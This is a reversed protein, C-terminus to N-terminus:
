MVKLTQLSVATWWVMRKNTKKFQWEEDCGIKLKTKESVSDAQVAFASTHIHWIGDDTQQSEVLKRNGQSDLSGADEGQYCEGLNEGGWVDMMMDYKGLQEFYEKDM